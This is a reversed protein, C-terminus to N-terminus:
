AAIGEELEGESRLATSLSIWFTAGRGLVSDVWARGDHLDAIKRVLALGIGEGPGDDLGKQYLAFARAQMEDPLGPGEDRVGIRVEDADVEALIRVRMGPEPCGYRVANAALNQIARRLLGEDAHVPPLPDAEISAGAAELDAALILRLDAVLEDLELAAPEIQTRGVRGIDLLGRLLASMNRVNQSIRDFAAMAQEARGREINRKAHSAFGSISVLPSNLDHGVVYLIQQMEDNKQRLAKNKRGLAASFAEQERSRAEALALLQNKARTNLVITASAFLATLIVIVGAALFAVRTANWFAEPSGLWKERLTGFLAKTKLDKLGADIEQLLAPYRKDVAISLPIETFPPGIAVFSESLSLIGLLRLFPREASLLSEVKGSALSVLADEKTGFEVLRYEPRDRLILAPVSGAVAGVSMGPRLKHGTQRVEDARAFFRLVIRDYPATFDLVAHREEHPALAPSIQVGGLEITDLIERPSGALFFELQAGRAAALARVLDIAFGDAAGDSNTFSYPAFESYVVRWTSDVREGEVASPVLLCLLALVLSFPRTLGACGDM